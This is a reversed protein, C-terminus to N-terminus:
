TEEVSVDRHLSGRWALQRWLTVDSHCWPRVAARVSHTGQALPLSTLMLLRM